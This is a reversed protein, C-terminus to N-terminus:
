SVLLRTAPTDTQFVKRTGVTLRVFVNTTLAFTPTLVITVRTMKVTRIQLKTSGIAIHFLFANEKKGLAHAATGMFTSVTPSATMIGAM